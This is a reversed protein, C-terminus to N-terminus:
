QIELPGQITLDQTTNLALWCNDVFTQFNMLQVLTKMKEQYIIPLLKQSVADNNTKDM